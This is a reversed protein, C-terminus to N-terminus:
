IVIMVWAIGEDAEIEEPPPGETDAHPNSLVEPNTLVAHPKAPKNPDTQQDSMSDHLPFPRPPEPPQWSAYHKAPDFLTTVIVKNSTCDVQYPYLTPRANLNINNDIFLSTYSRPLWSGSNPHAPLHTMSVM